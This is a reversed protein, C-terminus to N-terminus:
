KTLVIDRVGIWTNEANKKIDVVGTGGVGNVSSLYNEDVLNDNKFVFDSIWYMQGNEKKIAAHIHAPITNDPYRAPKITQITYQGNDDTKCWGHLHGQWKQAGTETGSKSYDGKNDTHYAYLIINPYPSKGDAKYITGTIVLKEGPENEKSIKMTSSLNEPLNRFSCSIPADPDDCTDYEVQINENSEPTQPTTNGCSLFFIPLFGLLSINKFIKM